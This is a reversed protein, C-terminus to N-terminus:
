VRGMLRDRLFGRARHLRVSSAGATIGLLDAIEDHSYGEVEKLIYVVRWEEPMRDLAWELTLRAEVQDPAESRGGERGARREWKTQRRTRRLLLLAARTAVKRIWAGLSGTGEYGQLAEPLGVFVDQTVDEADHASKTLRVSVEYVQDAYRRFLEALAEPEGARARAVLRTEPEATRDSSDKTPPESNVKM